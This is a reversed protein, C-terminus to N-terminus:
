LPVTHLCQTLGRGIWAGDANLDIVQIALVPPVSVQGSLPLTGTGTFLFAGGTSLVFVDMLVDNNADLWVSTLASGMGSALLVAQM